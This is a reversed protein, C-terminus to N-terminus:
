EALYVEDGDRVKEDIKIGVEQGRKGVEIEKHDLQMESVQQKFDTTHGKFQVNEGVKLQGALKVIAVGLKSYYHTVAGIKKSTGAM